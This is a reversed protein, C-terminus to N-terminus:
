WQRRIWVRVRHWRYLLRYLWVRLRIPWRRYWPLLAMYGEYFDLMAAIAENFARTVGETSARFEVFVTETEAVTPTGAARRNTAMRITTIADALALSAM